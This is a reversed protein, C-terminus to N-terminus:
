IINKLSGMFSLCGKLTELSNWTFRESNASMEGIHIKYMDKDIGTM